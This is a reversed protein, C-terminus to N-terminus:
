EPAWGGVEPNCFMARSDLRVIYESDVPWAVEFPSGDDETDRVLHVAGLKADMRSSVIVYCPVTQATPMIVNGSDMQLFETETIGKRTAVSAAVGSGTEPM